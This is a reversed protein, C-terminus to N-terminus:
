GARAEAEERKQIAADEFEEDKLWEEAVDHLRQVDAHCLSCISINTGDSPWTTHIIVHGRPVDMHLTPLGTVESHRLTAHINEM